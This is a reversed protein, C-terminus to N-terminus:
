RASSLIPLLWGYSGAFALALTAFGIAVRRMLLALPIAALISVVLFGVTFGLNPSGLGSAAGDSDVARYILGVVAGFLTWTPYALVALTMTIFIPPARALISRLFPPPDKALVVLMIPAVGIFVTSMILGAAVGALVFTM